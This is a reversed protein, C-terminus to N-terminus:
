GHCWIFLKVQIGLQGDEYNAEPFDIDPDEPSKKNSKSELASQNIESITKRIPVHGNAKFRLQAESQSRQPKTTKSQGSGM